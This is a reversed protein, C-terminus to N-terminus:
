FSKKTIPLRRGARIVNLVKKFGLHYMLDVISMYPEFPLNGTSYNEPEYNHFSLEIRKDAFREVGFDEKLYGMSGKTSLYSNCELNQCIFLLRETRDDVLLELDSSCIFKTDIGIKRSTLEIFSINLENLKTYERELFASIWIHVEDFFAAKRYTHYLTNILKKAWPKKNDILINNIASQFKNKQVPLTINVIGNKSSIRNRTQWSQKSFQVDNYLVFVNSQDILDFFGVWPFFTPQM